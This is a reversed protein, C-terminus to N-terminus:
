VLDMNLVTTKARVELLPRCFGELNLTAQKLYDM